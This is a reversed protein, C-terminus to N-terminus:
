RIFIPASYTSSLSGGGPIHVLIRYIGGRRVRALLSFRSSQTSRHRLKTGAVFVQRGHTSHMVAIEAGNLAPAVTGHFLARGRPGVRGAAAAIRADVSVLVAPSAVPPNTNTVVRFQTGQVMGLVPFSFGGAATTLEPNGLDAFGATYPFPNAQLVVERNANGTGALTGQITATGGYVAPNPSAFIALSLPVKTTMFDRDEGFAPGHANIAVLRYHYQTLPALGGLAVSVRVNGTGSGADLLATQLGYAKTPGYQFYYSTESGRPAIEGSVTASGFGVGSAPGTVVAPTLTSASAGASAGALTLAGMTLAVAIGKATM